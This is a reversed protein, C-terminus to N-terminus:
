ELRHLFHRLPHAAAGFGFGATLGGLSSSAKHRSREWALGDEPFIIILGLMNEM